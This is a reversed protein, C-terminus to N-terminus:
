INLFNNLLQIGSSQSKEPHFQVGFINEKEIGSCFNDIYNTENLIIEKENPQLFFSHVFYFEDKSSINQMLDSDKVLSVNNWGMHPIKFQKSNPTQFKKVSADIWGLGKQRGIGEESTMAMLQMGLCIGLIPKKRVLAFDNLPEILSLHNLNDMAKNFHGVGLLIVKDANLIDKPESSVSVDINEQLLKKQVSFINGMGYDVIHIKM